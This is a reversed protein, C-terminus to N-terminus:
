IGYDSELNEAITGKDLVLSLFDKEGKRFYIFPNDLDSASGGVRLLISLGNIIKGEFTPVEEESFLMSPNSDDKILLADLLGESIIEYEEKIIKRMLSDNGDNEEGYTSEMQELFDELYTPMNGSFPDPSTCKEAKPSKSYQNLSDRLKDIIYSCKLDSIQSSRGVFTTTTLIGTTLTEIIYHRFTAKICAKMMASELPSLKSGDNEGDMDLCMAEQMGDKVEEVLQSLKLLHPDCEPTSTPGLNIFEL